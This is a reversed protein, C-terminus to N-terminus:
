RAYANRMYGGGVSVSFGNWDVARRSTMRLRAIAFEAYMLTLPQMLITRVQVLIHQQQQQYAHLIGQALLILLAQQAIHTLLLQLVQQQQSQPLRESKQRPVPIQRQCQERRLEIRRSRLWRKPKKAQEEAKKKVAEEKEKKKREKDAKRNNMEEIEKKKKEKTGRPNCCM